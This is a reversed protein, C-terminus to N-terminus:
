VKPGSAFMLKIIINFQQLINCRLSPMSLVNSYKADILGIADHPIHRQLQILQATEDAAQAAHVTHTVERNRVGQKEALAIKTENWKQQVVNWM